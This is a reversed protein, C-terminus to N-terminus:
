SPLQTLKAVVKESSYIIRLNKFNNIDLKKRLYTQIKTALPDRNVNSLDGIHIHTPNSKGGAGICSVVKLNKNYCETLLILKTSIDDIADVM